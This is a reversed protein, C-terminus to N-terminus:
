RSCSVGSGNCVPCTSDDWRGEGTGRCTSCDDYDDETYEECADAELEWRSVENGTSDVYYKNRVM